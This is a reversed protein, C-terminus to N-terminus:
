RNSSHKSEQLYIILTYIESLHRCLSLMKHAELPKAPRAKPQTWNILSILFSSITDM